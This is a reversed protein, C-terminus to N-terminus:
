FMCVTVCGEGKWLRWPLGEPQVCQDTYGGYYPVLSGPPVPANPSPWGTKVFFVPDMGAGVAMERLALLYDVNPTENDLQISVIPGGNTWYMGEM